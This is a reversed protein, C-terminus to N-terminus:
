DNLSFLVGITNRGCHSSVTTGAVTEIIEDFNFLEEVKAKVAEFIDKDAFCHTIFCRKKDYKEGYEVALDTVYQTVSRMLSGTYKKKVALSGNNMSIYPHIKLLKAGLLALLSCRGGKHLFDLRDVVFSTRVSMKWNEIFDFVEKASKGENRLDVAKMVVLGQGSSLQRTDVVYVGKVEKSAALAHEYCSSDESSIDFHIVESGDETLKKFYEIYTEVPVAATKPLAANKNGEVFDIVEKATIDVNDHYEKGGLLITLPVITIDNEKVIEQSLDCTSDSSIKFTM